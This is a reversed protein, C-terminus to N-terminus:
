AAQRAKLHAMCLGGEVPRGKCPEGAKTTESCRDQSDQANREDTLDRQLRMFRDYVREPNEKWQSTTRLWDIFAEVPKASYEVLKHGGNPNDWDVERLQVTRM